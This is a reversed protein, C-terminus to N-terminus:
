NKRNMRDMLLEKLIWKNMFDRTEKEELKAWPNNKMQHDLLEKDKKSMQKLILRLNSLNQNKMATVFNMNTFEATKMKSLQAREKPTFLDRAQASSFGLLSILILWRFM